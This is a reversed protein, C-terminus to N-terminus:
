AWNSSSLLDGAPRHRSFASCSASALFSFHFISQWLSTSCALFRDSRHRPLAQLSDPQAAHSTCHVRLEFAELEIGGNCIGIASEWACEEVEARNTEALDWAQPADVVQVVDCGCASQSSFLSFLSFVALLSFNAQELEARDSASQREFHHIDKWLRRRCFCDPFELLAKLVDVVLRDV